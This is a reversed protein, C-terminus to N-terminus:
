SVACVSSEATSEKAVAGDSCANELGGSAGDRSKADKADAPTVAGYGGGAGGHGGSGRESDKAGSEAAGEEDESPVEEVRVEGGAMDTSQGAGLLKLDSRASQATGAGEGGESQSQRAESGSLRNHESMPLDLEQQISPLCGDLRSMMPAFRSAVDQLRRMQAQYDLHESEIRSIIQVARELHHRMRKLENESVQLNKHWRYGQNANLDCAYEFIDSTVVLLKNMIDKQTALVDKLPLKSFALTNGFMSVFFHNIELTWGLITAMRQLLAHADLIKYVYDVGWTERFIRLAKPMEEGDPQTEVLMQKFDRKLDVFYNPMNEAKVLRSKEPIALTKVQIFKSLVARTAPLLAEPDDVAQLLYLRLGSAVEEIEETKPFMTSHKSPLYLPKDVNEFDARIKKHLEKFDKYSKKIVWEGGNQRDSVLITFQVASMASDRAHDSMEFDYESGYGKDEPAVVPIGGSPASEEGGNGIALMNPAATLAAMMKSGDAARKGDIAKGSEMRKDTERMDSVYAKMVSVTAKDLLRHLKGSEYSSGDFHKTHVLNAGGPKSHYLMYALFAKGFEFGNLTHDNLEMFLVQLSKNKEERQVVELADAVREHVFDIVTHIKNEGIENPFCRFLSFLSLFLFLLFGVLLLSVSLPCLPCFARSGGERDSERM